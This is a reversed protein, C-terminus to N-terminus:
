YLLMSDPKSSLLIPSSLFPCCLRSLIYRGALSGDAMLVVDSASGLGLVVGWGDMDVYGCEIWEGSVKVGREVGKDEEWRGLM